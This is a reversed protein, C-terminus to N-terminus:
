IAKIAEFFEDESEEFKNIKYIRKELLLDKDEYEFDAFFLNQGKDKKIEEVFAKGLVLGIKGYDGFFYEQLLPIIKNYFSNKLLEVTNINIFFSHGITHDRSLLKELRKNIKELIDGLFVDEVTGIKSHKADPLMEEFHFRRRLATDLAEVSRDATNMTGIVYLNNPVSFKTKSYPLTVQLAEPEGERKDEELLTILEGFIQSVNGRNIEDIILVFNKPTEIELKEKVEETKVFFELKLNQKDLKYISQQSFSKHYIENVPINVDKVLWEVKRFQKYPIEANADLYYEGVVKAIARCTSNGNSILVYNGEKMYHIFYSIASLAFGTDGKEKALDMTKSESLGTFDTAGGWGMAICNNKICYDYIIDDESNLTDGLSLKFFSAKNFDDAKLQFKKTQVDPKYQARLCITKFIGDTIKYSIEKIADTTDKKESELVPKIGEIFDEYSLSQHFTIFEIQKEDCLRQYEDKVLERSQELDFAPNAIAIAKEITTYTKGTGPPGYLITNLPEITQIIDRGKMDDSDLGYVWIDLIGLDNPNLLTKLEAFLKIAEPYVTEVELWELFAIHKTNIIPFIQPNIYYLWPSYIGKKVEPINLEEFNEVLTVAQEVTEVTFSNILFEKVQQLQLPNLMTIASRGAGTFGKYELNEFEEILLHQQDEDEVMQPIYTNAIHIGSGAKLVQILGTLDLNVIEEKLLLHELLKKAFPIFASQALRIAYENTTKFDNYLELIYKRKDATIMLGAKAQHQKIKQFLKQFQDEKIFLLEQLGMEIVLQDIKPKENELWKYAHEKFNTKALYKRYKTNTIKEFGGLVDMAKKYFEIVKKNQEENWVIELNLGISNDGADWFVLGFSRTMNTGGGRNYLGVFAYSETGQFWISNDLRDKNNKQRLWFTFDPHTNRYQLMDELINQHLANKM